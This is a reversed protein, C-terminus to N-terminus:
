TTVKIGNRLVYIDFFSNTVKVVTTELQKQLENIFHFGANIVGIETDGEVEIFTNNRDDVNSILSVTYSSFRWDSYRWVIPTSISKGLALELISELSNITKEDNSVAFTREERNLSTKKDSRKCTLEPKKGVRLRVFDADAAKWYKDTYLGTEYLLLTNAKAFFPENTISKLASDVADFSAREVLLKIEIERDKAESM